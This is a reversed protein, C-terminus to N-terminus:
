YYGFTKFDEEYLKRIRQQDVERLEPNTVIDINVQTSHPNWSIIPKESGFINETILKLDKELTEFKGIYSYLNIPFALLSVQPSWHYNQDLGNGFELFDLFESFSIEYNADKKLFKQIQKRIIPRTGYKNFSSSIRIKDRYASLIRTYPNRIVTFIFFEKLSLVDTKSLSHCRPYTGMKLSNMEDRSFVGKGDEANYITAMVTSNAAKPIRSYIFKSKLSVVTCQDLYFINGLPPYKQYFPSLYYIPKQIIRKSVSIINNM